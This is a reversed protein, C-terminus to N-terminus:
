TEVGFVVVTLFVIMIRIQTVFAASMTCLVELLHVQATQVHYTTETVFVAITRYHLDEGFEEATWYARYHTTVLVGAVDIWGPGVTLCVQAIQAHCIEEVVSEVSMLKSQEVGSEVATTAVRNRRLYVHAM